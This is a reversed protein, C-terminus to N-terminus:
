TVSPGICTRIRRHCCFKTRNAAEFGPATQGLKPRRAISDCGDQPRQTCAPRAWTTNQDGFRLEVLPCSSMCMMDAYYLEAASMRWVVCVLLVRSMAQKLGMTGQVGVCLVVFPVLNTRPKEFGFYITHMDPVIGFPLM